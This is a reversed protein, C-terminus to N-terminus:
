ANKAASLIIMEAVKLGDAAASTIGGAYGAGEGCPYLNAIGPATLTEASRLIRMPASTRTEAGTLVADGTDFGNLIGGFARLGGRLSDTIFKPFLESMDALTCNGDMYTPLVRRPRTGRTGAMLDSVTCMPAAFGGGGLTHARMELMRQFKVADEPNGGVDAPNVSVAVAANSNRGDRAYTSMGNTVVGGDETSGCVVEGGPCMCFTYVGRGNVRYSLSYEAHGLAPHGALAGYMARDIDETLHEVRVGVSFPKAERQIDYLPLMAYIDRASHGTALVCCSCPINGKDTRAETIIGNAAEFGTLKTRYMIRGGLEEIRRAANEIIGPLLDTGVHPRARRLIDEPAGLESLMKLVAACRPDNVRTVLKGDSFTGAGGAGFQINCDPDLIKTRYFDDRCAIRESMCGGREIVIPEMGKEALLLAAFLGAPGTGVVLPPLAPRKPDPLSSSLFPAAPFAGHLASLADKDPRAGELTCSVSYVLRVNNKRRADVSCRYIHASLMKAKPVYRSIRKKAEAVAASDGADPSLAIDSIILEYTESM